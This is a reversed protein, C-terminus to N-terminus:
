IVHLSPRIVTQHGCSPALLNFLLIDNEKM